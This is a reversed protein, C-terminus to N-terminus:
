MVGERCKGTVIISIADTTSAIPDGPVSVSVTCSYNYSGATTYTQQLSSQSVAGTPNTAPTAGSVSPGSWTLVKSFVLFDFTMLQLTATCMLTATNFSPHNPLHYRTSNLVVAPKP